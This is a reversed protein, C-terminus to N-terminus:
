RIGKGFPRGTQFCGCHRLPHTNGRPGFVWRDLQLTAQRQTAPLGALEPIVRLPKVAHRYAQAWQGRASTTMSATANAPGPLASRYTLSLATHSLQTGAPLSIWGMVVATLLRLSRAEEESLTTQVPETLQNVHPLVWSFQDAGTSKVTAQRLPMGHHPCIWVGPFQHTRHWYPTGFNEHDEVMCVPCAKLPHNARFRSTLIGLRYKLMGKPEGVLSTVAASASTADQLPLYFPLITRDLCLEVATGLAQHTHESFKALRSPFDHECGSRHHGFLVLTTASPRINGSLVHYRSILSFVTEDPLWEPIPNSSTPFLSDLAIAM